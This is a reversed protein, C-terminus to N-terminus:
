LKKKLFNILQKENLVKLEINVFDIGEANFKNLRNYDKETTIIKANLNKATEKHVALRGLTATDGFPKNKSILGNPPWNRKPILPM